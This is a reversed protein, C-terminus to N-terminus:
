RVWKRICLISSAGIVFIGLTAPEPVVTLGDIKINDIGTYYSATDRADYMLVAFEVSDGASLSGLAALSWSFSGEYINAAGAAMAYGGLLVDTSNDYLLTNVSGSAVVNTTDIQKQVSTVWGSNNVNWALRLNTKYSLTKDTIGALDVSLTASSFNMSAGTNATVDFELRSVDTAYVSISPGIDLSCATFMNDAPVNSQYVVGAAKTADSLTGQVYAIDSVTAGATNEQYAALPNAEDFTYNILAAYSTITLAAMTSAIVRINKM